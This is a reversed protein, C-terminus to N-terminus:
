QVMESFEVTAANLGQVEFPTSALVKNLVEVQPSEVHTRMSAARTPPTITSLQRPDGAIRESVQVEHILELAKRSSIRDAIAGTLSGEVFESWSQHRIVSVLAPIIEPLNKPTSRFLIQYCTVGCSYVDSRHSYREGMRVEPAMFLFTGAQHTSRVGFSSEFQQKSLGFDTLKCHLGECVLVNEAKVDRHLIKQEHLYKLGCLIDSIWAILLSLPLSPIRDKKELVSWLSGISGLELILYTTRPDINCFGYIQLVCPHRCLSMLLIENEIAKKMSSNFSLGQGKVEIMKIAVVQNGYKGRKVEAFSGKGLFSEKEITFHSEPIALRTIREQRLIEENRSLSEKELLSLIRDINSNSSVVRSQCRETVERLKSFEVSFADLITQHFGSMSEVLSHNLESVLIIQQPLIENTQIFDEILSHIQTLQSRLEEIENQQSVSKSHSVVGTFTNQLQFIQRNTYQCLSLLELCRTRLQMVRVDNIGQFPALLQIEQLLSELDREIDACDTLLSPSSRFISIDKSNLNYVSTDPLPLGLDVKLQDIKKNFTQFFKLDSLHDDLMREFWSILNENNGSDSNDPKVFKKLFDDIEELLKDLLTEQSPTIQIQFLFVECSMRLKHSSLKHATALACTESIKQIKGKLKGM